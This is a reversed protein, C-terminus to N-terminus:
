HAGLENLQHHSNICLNRAHAYPANSVGIGAATLRTTGHRDASQHSPPNTSVDSHSGKNQRVPAM